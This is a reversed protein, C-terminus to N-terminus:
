LKTATHDINLLHTDILYYKPLAAHGKTPQPKEARRHRTDNPGPNQDNQVRKKPIIQPSCCRCAYGLIRLTGGHQTAAQSSDHTNSSM